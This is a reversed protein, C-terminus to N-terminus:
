PKRGIKNERRPQRGPNAKSNEGMRTKKALNDGQSEKSNEGM